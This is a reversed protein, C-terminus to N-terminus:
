RSLNIYDNSFLSKIYFIKRLLFNQKYYDYNKYLGLFYPVHFLFYIATLFNYFPIKKKISNFMSFRKWKIKQFSTSMHNTELFALQPLIVYQRIKGTTFNIPWDAAFSIKKNRKIIYNCANKTIQYCTAYPINFCARHLSFKRSTIETPKKYVIGFSHYLQILDYKKKFLELNLGLWDKLFKSPNCDDEMIIANSINKNVIYKYIRLHAEACSIEPYSLDKGLIKLCKRRDYKKQLIQHNSPDRGDIAYFFKFKIKLINLRKKIKAARVSKKITLVFVPIKQKFKLM